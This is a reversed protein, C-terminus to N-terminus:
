LLGMEKAANYLNLFIKLGDDTSDWAIWGNDTKFDGIGARKLLNEAFSDQDAGKEDSGCKLGWYPRYQEDESDYGDWVGLMVQNKLKIGFSNDEETLKFGLRQEAQSQWERMKKHSLEKTIEVKLNQITNDLEKTKDEQIELAQIQDELSSNEVHLEKLIIKRLEINMKKDLQSTHFMNELYDIYQDLASSIHPEGNISINRLWDTIDYKYSRVIFHDSGLEEFVNNANREDCLSFMSPLDRNTPNLYVVYIQSLCYRYKEVGIEHVYRYIQSKQEKAGNVKNELIIFLGQGRLAVDVRDAEATVEMYDHDIGLFNKLFSLQIAPHRLMDALVLSHGPEKLKGRCAAEIVNLHFPRASLYRAIVETVQKSLNITVKMGNTKYQFLYQSLEITKIM